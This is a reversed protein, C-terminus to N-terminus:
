NAKNSETKEPLLMPSSPVMEVNSFLLERGAAEQRSPNNHRRFPVKQFRQEPTVYIYFHDTSEGLPVFRWWQIRSFRPPMDLPSAGPARLQKPQTEPELLQAVLFLKVPRGATEFLDWKLYRLRKPLILSSPINGNEILPLELMEDERLELPDLSQVWQLQQQPTFCMHSQNGQVVLMPIKDGLDYFIELGSQGDDYCVLSDLDSVLGAVLLSSSCLSMVARTDINKATLKHWQWFRGYQRWIAWPELNSGDAKIKAKNTAKCLLPPLNAWRREVMAYRAKHDSKHWLFACNRETQMIDTLSTILTIRLMEAQENM